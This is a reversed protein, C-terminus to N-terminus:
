QQLQTKGFDFVQRRLCCCCCRSDIAFYLGGNGGGCSLERRNSQAASENKQANSAKTYRAVVELDHRRLLDLLGLGLLPPVLPILCQLVVM